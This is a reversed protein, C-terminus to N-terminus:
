ITEGHVKIEIEQSPNVKERETILGMMARAANELLEDISKGYVRICVDATHNLMEYDM